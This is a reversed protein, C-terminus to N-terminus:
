ELRLPLQQDRCVGWYKNEKAIKRAVELFNDRPHKGDTASSIAWYSEDSNHSSHYGGLNYGSNSGLGTLRLKDKEWKSDKPMRLYIYNTNDNTWGALIAPCEPIPVWTFM